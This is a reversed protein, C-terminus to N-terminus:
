RLSDAGHSSMVLPMYRNNKWVPIGNEFKYVDTGKKRVLVNDYTIEPPKRKWTTVNLRITNVAPDTVVIERECLAWEGDLRQINNHLSLYDWAHTETKSLEEFGLQTLPLRDARMKLWLSVVLTDKPGYQLPGDHFLNNDKLRVTKGKSSRYGEGNGDNEHDIWIIGSEPHNTKLGNPADWLSDPVLTERQLLSMQLARLDLTYFQITDQSYIMPGVPQMYPGDFEKSSGFRMALIPRPDKLHDLIELPSNPETVLQLLSWTQNLSTRSMMVNLMPLGTRISAEFAYKSSKPLNARFNESGDHYFPLAVLASYKEPQINAMWPSTKMGPIMGPEGDMYTMLKVVWIRVRVGENLAGGEFLTWAALLVGISIGIAARKKQRLWQMMQWLLFFSFTVWTYYFAWTFRGLSRFQKIPPFLETMREPKIAFPFGCAFIGVALGALMSTAILKRTNADLGEGPILQFSAFQRRFLHKGLNAATRIWFGILLLGAGLGIYSLGEWSPPVTKMLTQPIYDRLIPLAIPLLITSWTAVYEDIGYPNAPRDTVSDTLKLSITFLAVPLIVQLAFHMAKFWFSSSRWTLTSQFAWFATLFVAAIMVFYPHMWGMLFVALAIWASRLTSPKAHFRLSLYWILPVFFTYALAYHGNIKILQPSLMTVAAASIASWYANVQWGNLIRFLLWGTLFISLILAYNVIAVTWNGLGLLKVINSLLPQADAFVVHEGYPYNMGEFHTYTSDYKAHYWPTYYNKLGDFGGGMFTQNPELLPQRYFFGVMVLLISFLLALPLLDKRANMQQFKPINKATDHPFHSAHKRLFFFRDYVGLM